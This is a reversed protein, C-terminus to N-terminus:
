TWVGFIHQLTFRLGIAILVVGTVVRAWKELRSVWNFASGVRQVGWALLVGFVLVPLGTGLGYVSPLAFRSGAKVSLPLLSGFFLAASVPCFALAFVVGLLLAGALGSAALRRQLKESVGINLKLNVLGVLVLGTAILLPGLIKNMYKQLAHSVGPASLLSAVILAALAAYALMRGFTYGAGALAVRGPRTAERGIFSLAAINTALPCPSAATLLGLWLASLVAEVSM